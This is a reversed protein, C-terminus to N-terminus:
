RLAIVRVFVIDDGLFPVNTANSSVPFGNSGNIADTTGQSLTHLYIVGDTCIALKDGTLALTSVDNWHDLYSTLLTMTGLIGVSDFTTTISYIGRSSNSLAILVDGNGQCLASFHIAKNVTLFGSKKHICRQEELYQRIMEQM